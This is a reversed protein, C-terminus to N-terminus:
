WRSGVYHTLDVVNSSPNYLGRANQGQGLRTASGLDGIKAIIGGGGGPPFTCLINEPKIDRHLVRKSHMYSLASGLQRMVSVALKELPWDANFHASTRDM